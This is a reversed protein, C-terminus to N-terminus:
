PKRWNRDNISQGPKRKRRPILYDRNQKHYAALTEYKVRRVIPGRYPPDSKGRPPQLVFTSLETM